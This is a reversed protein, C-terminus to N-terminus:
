MAKSTKFYRGSAMDGTGAGSASMLLPDLVYISSFSTPHKGYTKRGRFNHRGRVKGDGVEIFFDAESVEIGSVMLKAHGKISSRRFIRRVSDIRSAELTGCNRNRYRELRFCKGSVIRGGSWGYGQERRFAHFRIKEFLNTFGYEVGLYKLVCALIKRNMVDFVRM